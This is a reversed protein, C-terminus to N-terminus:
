IPSPAFKMALISDCGASYVIWMMRGGSYAHIHVEITGQRGRPVVFGSGGVSPRSSAVAILGRPNPSTRVVAVREPNDPFSHLHVQDETVVFLQDSCLTIAIVDSRFKIEIVV